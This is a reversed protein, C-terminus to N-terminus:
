HHLKTLHCPQFQPLSNQQGRYLFLIPSRQYPPITYWTPIVTSFAQGSSNNVLYSVPFRQITISSLSPVWLAFFGSITLRMDITAHCTRTHLVVVEGDAYGWLLRWNKIFPWWKKWLNTGSQWTQKRSNQNLHQQNRQHQSCLIDTLSNIEQGQLFFPLRVPFSFLYYLQLLYNSLSPSQTSHPM